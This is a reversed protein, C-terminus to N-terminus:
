AGMAARIVVPAFTFLVVFVGFWVAARIVVPPVQRRDPDPTYAM